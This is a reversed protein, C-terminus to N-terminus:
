SLALLPEDFDRSRKKQLHKKEPQLQALKRKSKSLKKEVTSPTQSDLLTLSEIINRPVPKNTNANTNAEEADEEANKKKPAYVVVYHSYQPTNIDAFDRFDAFQEQTYPKPNSAAFYYQPRGHGNRYYSNYDAFNTNEDNDGYFTGGPIVGFNGSGLAGSSQETKYPNVDKYGSFRASQDYNNLYPRQSYAGEQQAFQSYYPRSHGLPQNRYTPYYYNQSAQRQDSSDVPNAQLQDEEATVGIRCVALAVVVSVAPLLCM